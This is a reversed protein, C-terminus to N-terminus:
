SQRKVWLNTVEYKFLYLSSCLFTERSNKVWLFCCPKYGTMTRPFHSTEAPSCIQGLFIKLRVFLAHLVSTLLVYLAYIPHMLLARLVRLCMLYSLVLTRLCTLCTLCSPAFARLKAFEQIQHDLYYIKIKKLMFSMPTEFFIEAPMFCILFM